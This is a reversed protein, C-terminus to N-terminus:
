CEFLILFTLGEFCKLITMSDLVAVCRISSPTLNVTILISIEIFVIQLLGFLRDWHM